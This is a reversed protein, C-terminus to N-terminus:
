DLAGEGETELMDRGGSGYGGEGGFQTGSPMGRVQTLDSSFSPRYVNSTMHQIGRVKTILDDANGQEIMARQTNFQSGSLAGYSM